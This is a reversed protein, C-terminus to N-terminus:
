ADVSSVALITEERELFSELLRSGAGDCGEPGFLDGAAVASVPEEVAAVPLRADCEM